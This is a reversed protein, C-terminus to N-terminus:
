ALVLLAGDSPPEGGRVDRLRDSGGFRASTLRTARLRQPSRAQSDGTRSGPWQVGRALAQALATDNNLGIALVAALEQVVNAFFDPTWSGEDARFTYDAILGGDEDTLIRDQHITHRVPRGDLTVAHLRLMDPPQQFAYLWRGWPAAELKALPTQMTAFSWRFPAGGPNTLAQGVVVEYHMSVQAGEASGDDFAAIRDAGVRALAANGVDIKTRPM